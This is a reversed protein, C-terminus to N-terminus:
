KIAPDIMRAKRLNEQARGKEGNESHLLFLNYYIEPSYPHLRSANELNIIRQKNEEQIKEWGAIVENKQEQKYTDIEMSFLPTGWIHQLYAIASETNGDMVGYM